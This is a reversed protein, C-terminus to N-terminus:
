ARKIWRQYRKYLLSSWPQCYEQPVQINVSHLTADSDPFAIAMQDTSIISDYSKPDVNSDGRM